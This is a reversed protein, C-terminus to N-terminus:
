IDTAEHNTWRAGTRCKSNKRAVAMVQIPMRTAEDVEQVIEKNANTQETSINM